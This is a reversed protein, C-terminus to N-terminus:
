RSAPRGSRRGPDGAQPQVQDGVLVFVFAQDEVYQVAATPIVPVQPHRGLEIEVRGYMGPRLAGDPNHLHVEADLTRTLADYAPALREVRGPVPQGGLADLSVLAPQGVRLLAARKEPVAVFARLTDFRAVTVVSGTTPGVLAGPDLRRAVVVGDMPAELRTEGLRTALAALNAQASGLQADAALKGTTVSQLDQQSVLGKPALAQARDLNAQAQAHAAEAQAVANRAATLQDPLDSPRVLALLQGKRVKDGRDVLVADLYGVVKSGLEAQVLPRLDTPARVLVPVDELAVVQTTVLPPPRTRAAVPPGGSCAALLSALLLALPVPRLMPAFM